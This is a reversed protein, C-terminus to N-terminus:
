DIEEWGGSKIRFHKSPVHLFDFFPVFLFKSLNM